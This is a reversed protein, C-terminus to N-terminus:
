HPETVPSFVGLAPLAENAAALARDTYRRLRDLQDADLRLAPTRWHLAVWDGRAAGPVVKPDYPVTVAQSPGVRLLGGELVLPPVQLSLQSGEVGTVEGWAPRCSEMNALTTPVHGTVNGVGVFGVHFMHHPIPRRPLHERLRTALRRPLGRRVLLELLEAFDRPEFADLLENGIWYAEVVTRDFPDRGHKRGITELYPVLAEFQALARRAAPLDEGETIARYLTRDAGTPGCYELRNTAISFRAGLQVGDM